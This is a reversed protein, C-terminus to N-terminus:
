ADEDLDAPDPDPVSDLSVSGYETRLRAVEEGVEVDTWDPNARRVKTELSIARAANLLGITRADKEPDAQSERPFDVEVDIGPAGGRGPFILADLELAVSAITATALTAYRMKKDRTTEERKDRRLEGTATLMGGTNEYDRTSLGARQLVVKTLSLIAAEHAQWRIEFQQSEVMTKDLAGLSKLQTYVEQEEDFYAGRGPGRVNLMDEPVFIRSRGLKIDRLYSSWAEDLASLQPVVGEYSSRGLFSAVGPARRFKASKRVNPQYTVTLRDIGTPIITQLPELIAGPLVALRQTQPISALPVLQGVNEETGLYLAHIIAGREHREFHRYLRDSVLHATWFNVATLVGRSDFEPLAADADVAQVFVADASEVDWGVRYYIGGLAACTEGGENLMLHAAPSNMITDLRAEVAQPADERGRSTRYGASFTPPEAWLLDSSMEAVDAALPAHMMTRNEGYSLPKGWFLRTLGGGVIGRLGGQRREGRFTHAQPTQNSYINALQVVDGSYWAEHELMADFVPELEAPPFQSGPTPLPM